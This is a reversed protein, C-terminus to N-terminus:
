EQSFDKFGHAIDFNCLSRGQRCLRPLVNKLHIRYGLYSMILGFPQKFLNLGPKDPYNFNKMKYQYKM